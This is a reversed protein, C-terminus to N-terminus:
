SEKENARAKRRQEMLRAATCYAKWHKYRVNNSDDKFMLIPQAAETPPISQIIPIKMQAQAKKAM